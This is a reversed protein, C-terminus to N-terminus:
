PVPSVVGRGALFGEINAVLRGMMNTVAEPSRGGVHPSLTIQPRSALGRPPAPEGEWVDLAAGAVLGQDIATALAEEDVIGPRAVNVLYGSPGLARLVDLSVLHYTQEGGPAALIVIDSWGALALLTDFYRYGCAPRERRTCYGIEVDFGALRRAIRTGIDGLGFLGVKRGHLESPSPVANRDQGAQAALHNVVVNRMGALTLALAQDAVSDSNVGPGYAVVIGRARAAEVDINEYGVGLCCVLALSPLQDIERATLGAHGTTVVLTIDARPREFAAQRKQASAADTTAGLAALTEFHGRPIASLLLICPPARLTM